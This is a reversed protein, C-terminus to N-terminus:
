FGRLKSPTVTILRSYTGQFTEPDMGLSKMGREYKAVYEAKVDDPMDTAQGLAAEGNFVVVDSGYQDTNFNLSVSSWREINGIKKDPQSFILFQEGTWIFWVPNPQPADDKGGTTLWIIEDEELRRLVRAGFESSRDITITM